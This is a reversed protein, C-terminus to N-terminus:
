LTRKVEITKYCEIVDGVKIDSYGEINMGCEQGSKVEKADDKFRKLQNLKRDSEVVIGDRTVRIQQNREITGDTVYCGAVMGLKSITFVDKVEAHGFVELKIEPDLM